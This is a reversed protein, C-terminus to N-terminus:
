GEDAAFDALWNGFATSEIDTFRIPVRCSGGKGVIEEGLKMAETRGLYLNGLADDGHGLFTLQVIGGEAHAMVRFGSGITVENTRVNEQGVAIGL